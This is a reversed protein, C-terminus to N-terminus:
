VNGKSKPDSTTVESLWLTALKEHASKNLHLMDKKFNEPGKYKSNVDIIIDANQNSRVYSALKENSPYKTQQNKLNTKTPNTLAVVTAGMKKAYKFMEDYINYKPNSSTSDNGGGMISVVDYQNKSKFNSELFGLMKNLDAGNSSANKGTIGKNKLLREAYSVGPYYTQSDGVFLVKIGKNLDFSGKGSPAGGGGGGSGGGSEGGFPQFSLDQRELLCDRIIKRIKKASIKM